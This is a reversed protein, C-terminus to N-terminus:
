GAKKVRRVLSIPVSAVVGSPKSDFAEPAEETSRRKWCAAAPESHPPDRLEGAKLDLEFAGIRVRNPLAAEM